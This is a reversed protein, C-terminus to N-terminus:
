YHVWPSGPPGSSYLVMVVVPAACLLTVLLILRSVSSYQPSPLCQLGWPWVQPGLPLCLNALSACGTCRIALAMFASTFVAISSTKTRQALTIPLAWKKDVRQCDQYVVSQVVICTEGGGWGVGRGAVYSHWMTFNFPKNSQSQCPWIQDIALNVWIPHPGEM